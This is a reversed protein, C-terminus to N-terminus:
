GKSSIYGRTCLRSLQGLRSTWLSEFGFDNNSDNVPRKYGLHSLFSNNITDNIETKRITIITILVDFIDRSIGLSGM